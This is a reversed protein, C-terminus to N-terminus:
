PFNNSLTEYHTSHFTTSIDENRKNILKAIATSYISYRVLYKQTPTYKQDYIPLSFLFNRFNDYTKLQFIDADTLIIDLIAYDLIYKKHVFMIKKFYDTIDEGLDMKRKIKEVIIDLKRTWFFSSINSTNASIFDFSINPCIIKLNEFIKLFLKRSRQMHFGETILIIEIKELNNQHILGEIIKYSFVMNGLTDMSEEELILNEKSINQEILYKALRSSESEIANLNFSSYGSVVVKFEVNNLIDARLHEILKKSRPRKQEDEGCLILYIKKLMCIKLFLSKYINRFEQM